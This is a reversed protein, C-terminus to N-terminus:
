RRSGAAIVGAARAEALLELWAPASEGTYVPSGDAMVASLAEPRERRAWEMAPELAGSIRSGVREAELLVIAQILGEGDGSARDVVYRVRHSLADVGLAALFDNTETLRVEISDGDESLVEVEARAKVVVDWELMSRTGERDISFTGATDRFEFDDTLMGLAGEVDHENVRRVLADVVRAPSPSSTTGAQALTAALLLEYM